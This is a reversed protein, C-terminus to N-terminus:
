KGWKKQQLVRNRIKWNRQILVWRSLLHLSSNLYSNMRNKANTNLELLVNVWTLLKFFYLYQHKFLVDLSLYNAQLPSRAHDNTKLELWKLRCGSLQKIYAKLHWLWICILNIHSKLRVTHPFQMKLMRQINIKFFYTAPTVKLYQEIGSSDTFTLITLVCAFTKYIFTLWRCFHSIKHSESKIVVKSVVWTIIKVWRLFTNQRDSIEWLMLQNELNKCTHALYKIDVWKITM